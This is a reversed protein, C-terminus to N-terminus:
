ICWLGIQSEVMYAGNKGGGLNHRERLLDYSTQQLTQRMVSYTVDSPLLHWFHVKEERKIFSSYVCASKISLRIRSEDNQYINRRPLLFTYKKLSDYLRHQRVWPGAMSIDPATRRLDLCQDWHPRAMCQTFGSTKNNRLVEACCTTNGVWLKLTEPKIRLGHTWTVAQSSNMHTEQKRLNELKRCPVPTGDLTFEGVKCEINKKYLNRLGSWALTALSSSRIIYSFFDVIKIFSKIIFTNLLVNKIFSCLICPSIFDITHELTSCGQM